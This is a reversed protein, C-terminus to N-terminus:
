SGGGGREELQDIRTLPSRPAGTRHAARALVQSSLPNTFLLFLGILLLKPWWEPRLCAAGALVLLTGLTTAKTGAQLRNYIDPMRLLGLAGFMLFASGAALLAAGLLDLLATM